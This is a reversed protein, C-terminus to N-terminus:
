LFGALRKGTAGKGETSIGIRPGSENRREQPCSSGQQVCGFEDGIRLSDVLVRLVRELCCGSRVTGNPAVKAGCAEQLEQLLARPAIASVGASRFRRWLSLAIPRIGGRPAIVQWDHPEGAM